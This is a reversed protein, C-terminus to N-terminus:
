IRAVRSAKAFQVGEWPKPIEMAWWEGGTVMEWSMRHIKQSSGFGFKRQKFQVERGQLFTSTPECGEFWGSALLFM